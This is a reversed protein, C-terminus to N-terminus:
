PQRLEESAPDGAPSENGASDVATVTYTYRHGGTIATDRFSPVQLVTSTLRVPAADRGEERRYVQYGALDPDTNPQWSLDISPATPSPNVIAELGTPRRPPFIDRMTVTVDPSPASRVDLAHGQLMVTRVRQVSYAYTEGRRATADLTGGADPRFPTSAGSLKEALLHQEAPTKDQAKTATPASTSPAPQLRRRDLEIRDTADEPQWRLLAGQATSSVHLGLIAPPTPGAVTFAPASLGASRGRDNELQVRYSLLTASGTALPPPLLEVAETPGPQVTVRRIPECKPPTAIRCIEATLPSTVLLGDTTKGATTWHLHVEDGIREATLDTVLSPLHLSPPRPTGPSACGIPLALVALLGLLRAPTPLNQLLALM